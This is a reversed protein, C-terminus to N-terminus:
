TEKVHEIAQLYKDLGDIKLKEQLWGIVFLHAVREAQEQTEMPMGGPYQKKWATRLETMLGYNQSIFVPLWMWRLELTQGFDTVIALKM